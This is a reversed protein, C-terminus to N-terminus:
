QFSFCSIPFNMALGVALSVISKMLVTWSAPTSKRVMWPRMREVGEECGTLRSAMLSRVVWVVTGVRELPSM